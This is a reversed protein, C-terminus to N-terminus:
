EEDSDLDMNLHVSGDDDSDSDENEIAPIAAPAVEVAVPKPLSAVPEASMAAKKSASGTEEDDDLKRKPASASPVGFARDPSKAREGLPRKAFPTKNLGALAPAPTESPTDIAEASEDEAEEEVNEDESTEENKVDEMTAFFAGSVHPTTRMNTRLVEVGQDMPFQQALFPLISPYLRGKQDKFPFLVSALMADKASTAIATQDLQGRLAPKVEGQPLRGLLATLLAEAAAYHAPALVTKIIHAEPAGKMFLDANAATGNKAVVLKRTDIKTAPKFVGAHEQLDRCCSAAILDLLSVTSKPMTPGALALLSALLTYSVTRVSPMAIGSKFVRTVYDLAEPVLSTFSSGLRDAMTQLLQLAAVHIEPTAAWLEDKEERGAAPKVEVAQEWSQTKPATKVMQTSRAVIDMYVAVPVVVAAKTPYRLSDALTRLLGIMRRSGARVGKWAPYEDVANGGGQAESDFDVTSTAHETKPEWSENVARFVQDATRHYHAVTERVLKAWDDSGGSKPATHHLTIALRRSASQLSDPILLKDGDTPAMFLRLIPKLQNTFPRFITPYLPILTSFAELVTEVVSLPVHLKKLDVAPKILGMCAQAFSPITPTAIERALTQYENVQVYIRTLAVIALERSAIPDHRQAVNVLGRVWPESSKLCEWGGVDIISKVLVVAAFRGQATRGNLLTTVITKLKHVLTATEAAAGKANKVDHTASLADRCRIVFDVLAPVARPLHAPPTSTLLRCLVRLEPVLSM